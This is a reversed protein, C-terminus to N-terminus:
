ISGGLGIDSRGVMPSIPVPLRRGEREEAPVIVGLSSLVDRGYAANPASQEMRHPPTIARPIDRGHGRFILLTGARMAMQGVQATSESWITLPAGRDTFCAKM